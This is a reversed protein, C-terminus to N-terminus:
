SNEPTTSTTSPQEQTLESQTLSDPTNSDPQPAPEEPSTSDTILPNQVEGDPTDGEEPQEPIEEDGTSPTEPQTQEPNQTDGANPQLVGSENGTEGQAPTQTDSQNVDTSENGSNAGSSGSTGTSGASSSSNTGGSTGSSSSSGSSSSTSGGSMTRIQLNSLPIDTDYPNFYENVIELVQKPYLVYYSGYSTEVGEGPLTFTPVDTFDCKLLEQAFYVLNGITLDTFVYEKFIEAFEPIKDLNSLSVCQKATALLFDQQVKTRQIDAMAYSRYRVLQMAHEGDLTQLGAQLDIYLDQTPDVYYMNQPVEFEVGGILDVIKVFAELDVLVYGDVEFGLIATLHKILYNMGDEGMGGVGYASNIKPVSYNANIYTDRPVSMMAVTHNTTDLRAIIITDTRTGDNDTGLLLINYYGEKQSGPIEIDLELEEGTDPDLTTVKHTNPKSDEKEGNELSTHKSSSKEPPRVYHNYIGVCELTLLVVAVLLLLLGRHTGNLHFKGRRASNSDSSKESASSDSDSTAHNLVSRRKETHSNSRKNGFLKM